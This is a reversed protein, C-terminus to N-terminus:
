LLVYINMIKNFLTNDVVQAQIRNYILSDIIIIYQVQIYLPLLRHSKKKILEGSINIWRQVNQWINLIFSLKKKKHQCHCLAHVGSMFVHLMTLKYLGCCSVCLKKM